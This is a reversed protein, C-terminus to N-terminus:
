AIEYAGNASSSGKRRISSVSSGGHRAAMSAASIEGGIGGAAM